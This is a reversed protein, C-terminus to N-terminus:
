YFNRRGIAFYKLDDMLHNDKDVPEDTPNKERDLAWRYAGYEMWANNSDDTWYVTYSQVMGIGVKNAVKVVSRVNFGNALQWYGPENKWGRRLEAIRADGGGGYDALILDRPGIGLDILRKALALNDLGNQYLLERGYINGDKYKFEALANPDVSYGFDLCYVKRLELAQYEARPIVKWNKYIKGKSGEGILGRIITHYYNPDTEAFREFKQITKENINIYNDLYTGFVSLIDSDPKPTAISYGDTDSDTLIYDRWIWHRKPPPNFIRLIQIDAKTTRLSLDLQDFDSESLEDAEEILVHTAGALSKMKATRSGDKLAGKSSIVNGTPKHLISIESENIKFENPNITPNDAIRDKFDLFLSGRIDSFAQRVFYGRFYKPQTILFLFYDTGFHSGGRGRGGWIDIIRSKTTFVPGYIRLPTIRTLM